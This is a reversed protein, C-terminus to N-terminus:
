PRGEKARWSLSRVALREGIFHIHRAPDDAPLEVMRFTGAPASQVCAPVYEPNESLPALCLDCKATVYNIIEPHLTGFPCALVCSKCGVCRLNYRKVTGREQRELAERPCAAVCFAEPCRRCYVAFEAMELLSLVGPNERHFLYECELSSPSAGTELFAPIDIYLRKLGM